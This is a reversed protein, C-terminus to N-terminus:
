KRAMTAPEAVRWTNSVLFGAGFAFRRSQAQRRTVRHTSDPACILMISWRRKPTPSGRHRGLVGMKGTRPWTCRSATPPAAPSMNTAAKSSASGPSRGRTKSSRAATSGSPTPRGSSLSPSLPAMATRRKPNTSCLQQRRRRCADGDGRPPWSWSWADGAHRVRARCGNRRGTPASRPPGAQVGAGRRLRHGDQAPQRSASLRMCRTGTSSTCKWSTPSQSESSSTTAAPLMAAASAPQVQLTDSSGRPLPSTRVRWPRSGTGAGAVSSSSVPKGSARRRAHRAFADRGRAGGDQRMEDGCRRHRQRRPQPQDGAAHSRAGALQLAHRIHQAGQHVGDIRVAPTFSSSTM